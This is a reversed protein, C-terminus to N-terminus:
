KTSIYERKLLRLVKEAGARTEAVIETPSMTAYREANYDRIKRIDRIDFNESLELKKEM